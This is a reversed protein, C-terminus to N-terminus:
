SHLKIVTVPQLPGHIPRKTADTLKDRPIHKNTEGHELLFLAQAILVFTSVSITWKLGPTPRCTLMVACTRNLLTILIDTQKDRQEFMETRRHRYVSDPM